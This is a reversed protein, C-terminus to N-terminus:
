YGLGGLDIVGDPWKAGAPYIMIVKDWFPNKDPATPHLRNVFRNSVARAGLKEYFGPVGTQWIAVPFEGDDVRRLVAKVVREGLGQGRHDPHSCVSALALLRLPNGGETAVVRSFGEAEAVTEGDVRIFAVIREPRSAPDEPAIEKPEEDPRPPWVTRSLGSYALLEDQTLEAAHKVTLRFGSM